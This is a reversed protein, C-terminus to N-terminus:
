FIEIRDTDDPQEAPDNGNFVLFGKTDFVDDLGCCGEKGCICEDVRCVDDCHKGVGGM